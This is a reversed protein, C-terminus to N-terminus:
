MRFGLVWSQTERWSLSLLPVSLFLWFLDFLMKVKNEGFAGTSTTELNHSQKSSRSRFMWSMKFGQAYLVKWILCLVLLLARWLAYFEKKKTDSFGFIIDASYVNQGQCVKQFENHGITLVVNKSKLKIWTSTVQNCSCTWWSDRLLPPSILWSVSKNANCCTLLLHSTQHRDKNQYGRLASDLWSSCENGMTGRGWGLGQSSRSPFFNYRTHISLLPPFCGAAILLRQASPNKPVSPGLFEMLVGSMSKRTHFSFSLPCCSIDPCSGLCISLLCSHTLVQVWFFHTASSHM